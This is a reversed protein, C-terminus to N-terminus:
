SGWTDSTELVFTGYSGGNGLQFFTFARGNLDSGSAGTFTDGTNLANAGHQWCWTGQIRGRRGASPEMVFPRALEIGGTIPSPFALSGAGFYTMSIAGLPDAVKAPQVSTGVQTHPRAIYHGSSATSASTALSYWGHTSSSASPTSSPDAILITGYLDGSKLTAFDGFTYAFNYANTWTPSTSGAGVILHFLKGDSVLMWPRATSSAAESKRLYLGGSFQVDTPFPGTGSSISSMTEYGRVRANQTGTDDVYLYFGNSGAPQKYAALNTGTYPKTWGLTTVLCFDLVAILSGATGALAPAGSTANTVVVVAM